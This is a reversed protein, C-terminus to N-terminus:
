EDIVNCVIADTTLLTTAVSVANELATRTVKKPDVIGAERLNTYVGKLADFGFNIDSNEITQAVVGGNYGSNEAIQNIPAYLSSLLIKAGTKEDGDLTDILNQVSPITKIYACGGGIVTGEQIASKTASLADEIRLKKENLEIETTAGVKIVAVISKLKALRDLYIKKDLEDNCESQLEKIMEIRNEILENEGKGEIITTNDKTVILQKCTGLDILETNEIPKNLELSIYNAGVLTCYDVLIEHRQEGFAPSKITVVNLSGRLKNVVLTAIVEESFDPAIIALKGNVSAVKELIPLVQNITDIKQDTILIYPNEMECIQKQTNTSMYPSSYGKDFQLGNVIELITNSKNGEEITIIGDNGVRNFADAILKGIENDACSITAVQEIDKSSEVKQSQETLKETVIKTAKRIGSNILFPNAGATTNKVGEKYLAQALVCATTTGDGAIENTKISAERIIKVGLDESPEKVSIEKAITVGDNTIIPNGMRELVVNKGKPGLTIKVTNCLTDVGKELKERAQKGELIIKSM